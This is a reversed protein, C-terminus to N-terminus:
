TDLNQIFLENNICLTEYKASVWVGIKDLEDIMDNTLQVNSIDAFHLCIVSSERPAVFLKDCVPKDIIELAQKIIEWNTM